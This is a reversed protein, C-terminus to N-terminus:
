SPKDERNAGGDEEEGVIAGSEVVLSLIRNGGPEEEELRQAEKNISHEVFHVTLLCSFCSIAGRESENKIVSTISKRGAELADYKDLASLILVYNSEPWAGHDTCVEMEASELFVVDSSKIESESIKNRVANWNDHAEIDDLANPSVVEPQVNDIFLASDSNIVTKGDTTTNKGAEGWNEHAKLFDEIVLLLLQLWTINRTHWEHHLIQHNLRNAVEHHDGSDGGYSEHALVWQVQSIELNFIVLGVWDEIEIQKLTEHHLM